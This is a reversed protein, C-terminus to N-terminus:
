HGLVPVHVGGAGHAAAAQDALAASSEADAAAAASAASKERAADMPARKTYVGVGAIQENRVSASVGANGEFGTTLPAAGEPLIRARLDTALGVATQHAAGAQEHSAQAATHNRSAERHLAAADGHNGLAAARHARYTASGAADTHLQAARTDGIGRQHNERIAPMSTRMLDTTTEHGCYGNSSLLSMVAALFVGTKIMKV